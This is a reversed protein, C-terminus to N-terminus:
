YDASFNDVKWEGGIKVLNFTINITFEADKNTVLIKSTDGTIVAKGFSYTRKKKQYEERAEPSMKGGYLQMNDLMQRAQKSDTMLKRASEADFNDLAELYEKVVAEPAKAPRCSYVFL